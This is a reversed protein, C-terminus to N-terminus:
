TYLSYIDVHRNIIFSPSGPPETIHEGLKHKFHSYISIVYKYIKCFIIMRHMSAGEVKLKEVIGEFYNSFDKTKDLVTYIINNNAPPIYIVEPLQMNLPARVYCRAGGTSGSM